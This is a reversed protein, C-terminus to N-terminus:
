HNYIGILALLANGLAPWVTLRPPAATTRQAHSWAYLWLASQQEEPLGSPAILQRDIIDLTDGHELRTAIARQQGVYARSPCDPTHNHRRKLHHRLADLMLVQGHEPALEYVDRDLQDSARSFPHITAM